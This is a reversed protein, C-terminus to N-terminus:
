SYYLIGCLEDTVVPEYNWWGKFLIQPVGDVAKIAYYIVNDKIHLEDIGDGDIDLFCYKIDNDWFLNSITVQKEEQEVSLKGNLFREYIEMPDSDAENDADSKADIDEDLNESENVDEPEPAEDKDHTIDVESYIIYVESNEVHELNEVNEESEMGDFSDTYADKGCGTLATMTFMFLLIKYRCIYGKFKEKM